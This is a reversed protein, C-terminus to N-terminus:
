STLQTISSAIQKNIFDVQLLHNSSFYAKLLTLAAMRTDFTHVSNAYLIWNVLLSIVQTPQADNNSSPSNVSPDFFPVDIKGFEVQCMENERIMDAATLLAVPRIRKPINYYFALRLVIMLINSGLLTDQHKKTVSNGQEVTLSVIDLCTNMNVIRQDNWFFEVPGTEDETILPQNLLHALKPLNGTELFLTQNSTNYSLINNILSLCDNVVVSGRLSGEEEIIAFLREFINEFAVLKQVHPSDKVIAMLLLIAEDRIPEHIDDLLSVMTSISTPLETIANRARAPRTALVAEMIQIAYLRIHFNETELFQIILHILEPSQILADAIWMSFQDASEQEAKMVLPSPYKGNQLRSQQSIWDRTLDQDGDGRIFLILLTELIARVMDDDINDRKLANLLPKLGSAVVTERYQRSFAKLGLVASRRDGILTSNEVRDCLTPITEEATPVKPQQM